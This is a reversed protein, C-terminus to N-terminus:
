VVLSENEALIVSKWAFFWLQILEGFFGFYQQIWELTPRDEVSAVFKFKMNKRIQIAM